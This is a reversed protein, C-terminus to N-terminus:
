QCGLTVEWDSAGLDNPFGLSSLWSKGNRQDLLPLPIASLIPPAVLLASSCSGHPLSNNAATSTSVGPIYPDTPFLPM